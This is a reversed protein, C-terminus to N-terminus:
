STPLKRRSADCSMRLRGYGTSLHPTKPKSRHFLWCAGLRLRPLLPLPPSSLPFRFSSPLPPSSLHPLSHTHTPLSTHTLPYILSLHSSALFHFPNRPVSLVQREFYGGARGFDQLRASTFDVSHLKALVRAVDQFAASRDSPSMGPMGPDIFIRGEVFEMVYFAAGIVEEDECLFYTHPVPITTHQKLARLVHFERDVAHASRVKVAAPRKRLVYKGQPFVLLYTPNSEGTSFQKVHMDEPSSSISGTPMSAVLYAHLRINDLVHRARVEGFAQGSMVRTHVVKLFIM